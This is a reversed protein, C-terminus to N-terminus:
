KSEQPTNRECTEGRLRYAQKPRCKGDKQYTYGIMSSYPIFTYTSQPLISYQATIHFYLCTYSKILFDELPNISLYFFFYECISAM